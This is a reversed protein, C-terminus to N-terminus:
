CNVNEMDIPYLSESLGQKCLAGVVPQLILENSMSSQSLKGVSEVVEQM